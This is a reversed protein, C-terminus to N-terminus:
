TPSSLAHDLIDRVPTLEMALCACAEAPDALHEHFVIDFVSRNWGLGPLLTGALCASGWAVLKPLYVIRPHTGLRACVQRLLAVYTLTEPGVLTLVRLPRPATTIAWVIARLVDAQAIPQIRVTGGSVLPLFPSKAMRCLQVM